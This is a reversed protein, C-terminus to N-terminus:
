KSTDSETRIFIPRNLVKKKKHINQCSYREFFFDIEDLNIVM